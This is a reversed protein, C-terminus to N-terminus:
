THCKCQVTIHAGVKRYTKWGYDLSLKYVVYTTPIFLVSITGTLVIQLTLNSELAAHDYLDTAKM